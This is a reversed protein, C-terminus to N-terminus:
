ANVRPIVAIRKSRHGAFIGAGIFGAALASARPLAALSPLHLLFRRRNLM